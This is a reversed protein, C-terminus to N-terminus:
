GVWPRKFSLREPFAETLIFPLDDSLGQGPKWANSFRGPSEANGMRSQQVFQLPMAKPHNLFLGHPAKEFWVYINKIILYIRSQNQLIPVIESRIGDAKFIGTRKPGQLISAFLRTRRAQLAKCGPFPAAPFRATHNPLDKAIM